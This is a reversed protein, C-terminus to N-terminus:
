NRIERANAIRLFSAEDTELLLKQALMADGAPVDPPQICFSRVERGGQVLYVNGHSGWKIRYTKGGVLVDFHGHDKLSKRQAPSINEVLLRKARTEAIRQEAMIARQREFLRAENERRAAERALRQAASERVEIRGLAEGNWTQWAVQDLHAHESQVWQNWVDLTASTVSSTNSTTWTISSATGATLILGDTTSASTSTGTSIIWRETTGATWIAAEPPLLWSTGNGGTGVTRM